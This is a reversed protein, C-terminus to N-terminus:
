GHSGGDGKMISCVGEIAKDIAYGAIVVVLALFLIPGWFGISIMTHSIAGLM